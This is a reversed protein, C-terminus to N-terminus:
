QAHMCQMNRMCEPRISINYLVHLAQMISKRQKVQDVGVGGNCDQFFRILINACANCFDNINEDGLRSACNRLETPMRVCDQSQALGFITILCSLVAVAFITKM